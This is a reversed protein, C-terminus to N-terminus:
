TPTRSPGSDQPPGSTSSPAAADPNRATHAEGPGAAPTWASAVFAYGVGLLAEAAALLPVYDEMSMPWWLMLGLLSVIATLALLGLGVGATIRAARSHLRGRAAHFLAVHALVVSSFVVPVHPFLFFTYIYPVTSSGQLAHPILLLGIGFWALSAMFARRMRRPPGLPEEPIAAQLVLWSYGHLLLGLWSLGLFWLLSAGWNGFGTTALWSGSLSFCGYSLLSAAKSISNGAM